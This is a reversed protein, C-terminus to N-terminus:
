LDFLGFAAEIEEDSAYLGRRSQELGREVSARHAPDIPEPERDDVTPRDRGQVAGAAEPSPPELTLNSRRKM